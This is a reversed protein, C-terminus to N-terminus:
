NRLLGKLFGKNVGIKAGNIKDYKLAENIIFELDIEEIDIENPLYPPIFNLQCRSLLYGLAKGHGINYYGTMPYSLSHLINTGAIAIAKGSLNGAKILTPLTPRKKLLELVKRSYRDSEPTAKKSWLSELAHCLADYTTDEIVEKPLGELFEPNIHVEKPFHTKRSYKIPGDWFVSHSTFASGAATTPYAIIPNRSIIKATDIVAGGGVAIVEEETNEYKEVFDRTLPQTVILYRELDSFFKRTSKSCVLYPEM